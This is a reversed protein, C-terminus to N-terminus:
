DLECCYRLIRKRKIRKEEFWESLEWFEEVVGWLRGKHFGFVGICLLLARPDLGQDREELRETEELRGCFTWVFKVRIRGVFDSDPVLEKGVIWWLGLTGLIVLIGVFGLRGMGEGATPDGWLVNLAGFEGMLLVVPEPMIQLHSAIIYASELM